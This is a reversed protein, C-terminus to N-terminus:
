AAEYGEAAVGSVPLRAAALFPSVGLGALPPGFYYGQGFGCGLRAVAAAQEASEIGEAVVTQDLTAALQVITEVFAANAQGDHLASVFPKAIKLIDIPFDRLHALSSHGTGFDDLALGVGLARLQRMTARAEEPNRMVGDETLELVLCGPALGTEALVQEVELALNANLLESPALNVNVSLGARGPFTAQWAKTQRCAERLVVRGIKVMLGLEDALPIFSAPPIVGHGERVWRVLAELGILRRDRLDVIPQYHVVIEGSEIARELAAGLETRTRVREQMQSEFRVYRRKGQQKATYMAVDANRLLETASVGSSGFALGVSVHVVLTQGEVYYAESLADVLRQAIREADEERAGRALVAFEDGGLRAPVDLPRICSAIREAVARLLEDGAQHGYSDNVLKFDDLDLFLVAPRGTEAESALVEDVRKTFLARNPLGTLQDHSAQYDLAEKLATLESLSQEMQGHELLIAAEGAYTELLRADEQSFPADVNGVTVVAIAGSPRRLGAVLASALRRESLFASLGAAPTTLVSRAAVAARIAADEAPSLRAPRLETVGRDSCEAVLTAQQPERPLLAIWVLDARLLRRTSVILESLSAGRGPDSQALRMSAYLARLDDHRRRENVYAHLLLGSFVFPLVLLIAAGKSDRLLELAALAIAISAATGAVATLAVVPQVQDRVPSPSTLWYMALAAGVAALTAAVWGAWGHASGFALAFNFVAIGVCTAFVLNRLRRLVMRPRRPGVAATALLVGSVQAALVGWAPALFLGLVLAAEHSSLWGFGSRGRSALAYWEALCFLPILSWWPLIGVDPPTGYPLFSM